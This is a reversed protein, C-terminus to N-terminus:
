VDADRAVIEHCARAEEALMVAVRKVRYCCPLALAADWALDRRSAHVFGRALSAGAVRPRKATLRFGDDALFDFALDTLDGPLQSAAWVDALCVHPAGDIRTVALRRLDITALREGLAVSMRSDLAAGGAADAFGHKTRHTDHTCSCDKGM